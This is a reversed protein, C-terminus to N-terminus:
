NAKLNDYIFNNTIEDLIPRGTEDQLFEEDNNLLNRPPLTRHIRHLEKLGPKPPCCPGSLDKDPDIILPLGTM